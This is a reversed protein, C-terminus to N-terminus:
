SNVMQEFDHGSDEVQQLGYLVKDLGKILGEVSELLHSNVAGEYEQTLYKYYENFDTQIEAWLNFAESVSRTLIGTGYERRFDDLSVFWNGSRRRM